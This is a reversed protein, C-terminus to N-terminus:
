IFNNLQKILSFIFIFLNKFKSNSNAIFLRNINFLYKNIENGKM